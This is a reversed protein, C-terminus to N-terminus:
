AKSRDVSYTIHSPQAIDARGRVASVGLDRLIQASVHARRKAALLEIRARAVEDVAEPALASTAALYILV